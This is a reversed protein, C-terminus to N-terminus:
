TVRGHLILNVIVNVVTVALIVVILGLIAYTATKKGASAQEENGGATMYRFGGIMLFILSVSGILTFAINLVKRVLPGVTCYKPLNPLQAGYTNLSSDLNTCGDAQVPLPIILLSGTLLTISFILQFFKTM